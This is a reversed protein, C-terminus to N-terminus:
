CRNMAQQVKRVLMDQACHKQVPNQLLATSLFATSASHTEVYPLSTEKLHGYYFEHECESSSIRHKMVMNQEWESFYFLIAMALTGEM